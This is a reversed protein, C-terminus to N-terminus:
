TGNVTQKVELGIEAKIFGRDLNPIYVKQKLEIGLQLTV